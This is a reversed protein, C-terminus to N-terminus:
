KIAALQAPTFALPFCADHASRDGLSTVAVVNGQEDFVGAGSDGAFIPLVFIQLTAAVDEVPDLKDFYGIRYVDDSKGPAGWLHVHEGVVLPRQTVPVWDAFDRDVVYIVHDNGDILALVIHAPDPNNDVYLVNSDTFCHQATLLSHPGVATASCHGHMTPDTVDRIGIKHTAAHQQEVPSRSEVPKASTTYRAFATVRACGISFIMAACLLAAYLSRM